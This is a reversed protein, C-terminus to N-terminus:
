IGGQQPHTQSNHSSNLLKVVDTFSSLQDILGVERADQAYFTRGDAAKERVHKESLGRNDSIANIFFGYATDLQAQIYEKDSASLPEFPNGIKKYKGAAFVTAKVGQEEMEKSYEMHTAIVGISGFSAMETGHIERAASGLWMAASHMSGSSFASVPMIKADIEKLVDTAEALGNVRGGPSDIDMLLHEIGPEQTASVAAAQIEDYGTMGFIRTLWNSRAILSGSVDMVATADVKQMMYGYGQFEDGTGEEMYNKAQLEAEVPLSDMKELADLYVKYSSLDGAWLLDRLAQKSNM